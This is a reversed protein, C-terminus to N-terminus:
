EGKVSYVEVIETVHSKRGNDARIIDTVINKILSDDVDCINSYNRINMMHRAIYSPITNDFVDVDSGKLKKNTSNGNKDVLCFLGNAYDGIYYIEGNISVKNGIKKWHELSM